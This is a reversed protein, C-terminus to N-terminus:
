YPFPQSPWPDRGGLIDPIGHNLNIFENIVCIAENACPQVVKPNRDCEDEKGGEDLCEKKAQLCSVSQDFCSNLLVQFKGPAAYAPSLEGLQKYFEGVLKKDSRAAFVEYRTVAKTLAVLAIVSNREKDDLSKLNRVINQNQKLLINLAEDRKNYISSLESSDRVEGRMHACGSVMLFMLLLFSVRKLVGINM